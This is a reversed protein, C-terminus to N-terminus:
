GAFPVKSLGRVNTSYAREIGARDIEYDPFRAVFERLAIRTELRALSAGLCFHVGLGFGLHRDVPRDLRFVDPDDFVRPDRNAAGNILLVIEGAPVERDHWVAPRTTVRGQYHSPPDYRLVEEVAKPWLGPDGTLRTREDPHDALAVLATAILKATTENGAVGLLICFSVIEDDTLRRETGDEDIVAEVLAGALDDRPTRRRDAALGAFYNWLEAGATLADDPMTLVGEERHMLRESTGRLWADDAAPVGLLRGIVAMPLRGAFDAVADGSGRERLPDLLERALDHVQAELEGIRRRTFGKSVLKRLVDHRPPDQFIIMDPPPGDAQINEILTGRASSLLGHATLGASVDDFRTLAWFGIEPNHHIPEDDQMWRYVPFPDQQIRYSSPDYSFTANSM